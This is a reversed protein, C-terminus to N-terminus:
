EHTEDEKIFKLELKYGIPKLLEELKNIAMSKGTFKSNLKQPTTDLQEALWTMSKGEKNLLYKIEAKIEKNNM